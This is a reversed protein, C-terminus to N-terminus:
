KKKGLIVVGDTFSQGYGMEKNYSETGWGSIVPMIQVVEYGDENLEKIASNISDNLKDLDPRMALKNSDGMFVRVTIVKNTM